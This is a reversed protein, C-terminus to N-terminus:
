CVTKIIDVEGGRLAVMRIRSYKTVDLAPTKDGEEVGKEKKM